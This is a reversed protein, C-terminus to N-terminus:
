LFLECMLLFMNYRMTIHIMTYIIIEIFVDTWINFKTLTWSSTFTEQLVSITATVPTNKRSQKWRHKSSVKLRPLIQSYKIIKNVGKRQVCHEWIQLKQQCFLNPSYLRREEKEMKRVASVQFCHLIAAKLTTRHQLM